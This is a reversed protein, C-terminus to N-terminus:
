QPWLAQVLHENIVDAVDRDRVIPGGDEPQELDLLGRGLDADMGAAGASAECCAKCEVLRGTSHVM